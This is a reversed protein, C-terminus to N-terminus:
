SFLFPPHFKTISVVQQKLLGAIKAKDDALLLGREYQEEVLQIKLNVLFLAAHCIMAYAFSDPYTEALKLITVKAKETQARYSELLRPGLMTRLGTDGRLLLEEHVDVFACILQLDDLAPFTQRPGLAAWLWSWLAGTVRQWRPMRKSGWLSSHPESTSRSPRGCCSSCFSKFVGLYGTPAENRRLKGATLIWEVDFGTITELIEQIKENPRKRKKKIAGLCRKHSEFDDAVKSLDSNLGSLNIDSGHAAFVEKWAKIQSKQQVDVLAFDTVVDATAMFGVYVTGSVFSQEYMRRYLQRMTNIVMILIEGERDKAQVPSRSPTIPALEDVDGFQAFSAHQALHNPVSMTRPIRSGPSEAATPAAIEGVSM